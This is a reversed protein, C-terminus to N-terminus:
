VWTMELDAQSSQSERERGPECGRTDEIFLQLNELGLIIESFSLDPLQQHSGLGLVGNKDDVILSLDIRSLALTCM